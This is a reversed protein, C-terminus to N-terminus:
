AAARCASTDGVRMITFAGASPILHRYRRNVCVVRAGSHNLRYAVADAGFGAFIPALMAEARLIGIIVPVVVPIRPLITAVRDGKRVGLRRLLDGCRASWRSSRSRLAASPAM